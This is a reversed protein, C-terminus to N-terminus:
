TAAVLTLPAPNLDALADSEGGVWADYYVIENPNSSIAMKFLIFDGAGLNRTEEAPVFLEHVAEFYLNTRWTNSPDSHSIPTLTTPDQDYGIVQNVEITHAVTYVDLMETLTDYVVQASAFAITSLKALM